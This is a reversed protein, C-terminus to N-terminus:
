LVRVVAVVRLVPDVLRCRFLELLNLRREVAVLRGDDVLEQLADHLDLSFGMSVESGTRLSIGGLSNPDQAAREHGRVIRLQRRALGSSRVLTREIRRDGKRESACRTERDRM